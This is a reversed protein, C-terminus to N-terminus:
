AMLYQMAEVPDSFLMLAEDTAVMRGYHTSMEHQISYADISYGLQESVEAYSITLREPSRIEWFAPQEFVETDDRRGLLAAVADGEASRAMVIGVYDYTAQRNDPPPQAVAKAVAARRRRRGGAEPVRRGPLRAERGLGAEALVAEGYDRLRAPDVAFPLAAVIADAAEFALPRWQEVWDRLRGANAELLFRSLATSWTRVWDWEQSEVRALAPTVTDGHAAAARTAIERRLLTGVVPEFVLNAAVIVEGWDETAALRELYRRTPQWEPREMFAQHAAKISFGGLHPELDMAYLVLSQAARQKLAAQLCVCHTVTDSLCSRAITATAFWIGHNVFAPIQLYARLFAVWAPDFDGLLGERAAARAAGEIQQEAAAGAQYFSREWHEGPDRFAFWDACRLVTSDDDWTGRGDEFSVAWGRTLHRHVSPQTDVTVEEYLTARSGAPAFWAFARESTFGSAAAESSTTFKDTFVRERNVGHNELVAEAAEVMPPPGCMYVDVDVDTLWADLAEHVLRGTVPTFVFDELSLARIEDLGFLDDESRAGYFFRVPRRCNTHALQRLLSLIPAMGSGGAIMLIPRDSEHVRLSGYPGTLSLRDGPQIQGDLLGSLRGGPYRKIILEIRGDGPLNAMSFSRRAGPVHLDVYQGPTFTFDPVDLVLRTIDHTLPEVTQVAAEHSAIAHELRLNEPDFHLLEVVVDDEPIARCMLSYGAREESESLAFSSHPKLQVDGELLFCKCASCQGERCGHVLNLGQRFAAELVTEGPGCDIELGVPELRVRM